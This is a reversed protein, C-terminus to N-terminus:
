FYVRTIFFCIATMNRRMQLISVPILIDRTVLSNGYVICSKLYLLMFFNHQKKSVRLFNKIHVLAAQGERRPGTAFRSLARSLAHKTSKSCDYMKGFAQLKTIKTQVCMIFIIALRVLSRPQDKKRKLTTKTLESQTQPNFM